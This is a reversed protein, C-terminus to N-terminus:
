SALSIASLSSHRKKYKPYHTVYQSDSYKTVLTAEKVDLTTGKPDLRWGQGFSPVNLGLNNM